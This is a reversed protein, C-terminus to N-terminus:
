SKFGENLKDGFFKAAEYTDFVMRRGGKKELYTERIGSSPDGTYAGEVDDYKVLWFCKGDLTMFPRYKGDYAVPEDLPYFKQDFEKTSRVFAKDTGKTTYRVTPWWEDEFQILTSDLIHLVNYIVGKYQYRYGAAIRTVMM